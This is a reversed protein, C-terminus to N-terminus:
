DTSIFTLDLYLKRLTDIILNASFLGRGPAKTADLALDRSDFIENVWDLLSSKDKESAFKNILKSYFEYMKLYIDAYKAWDNKEEPIKTFNELKIFKVESCNQEFISIDKFSSLDYFYGRKAAIHLTQTINALLPRLWLYLFTHNIKDLSQEIWPFYEMLLYYDHFADGNAFKGKNEILKEIKILNPVGSLAKATEMTTTADSPLFYFLLSIPFTIVNFFGTIAAYASSKGCKELHSFYRKLVFMEGNENKVLFREGSLFDEGVELRRILTFKSLEDSGTGKGRIFEPLLKIEASTPATEIPLIKEPEVLLPVKVEPPSSESLNKKVDNIIIKNPVGNPASSFLLQKKRELDKMTEISSFALIALKVAQAVSGFYSGEKWEEKLDLGSAVMQILYSILRLELGGKFYIALNITDALVHVLEQAIKEKSAGKEIKKQLDSLRFVISSTIEIPQLLTPALVSYGASIVSFATKLFEDSIDKDASFQQYLQYINHAAKLSLAIKPNALGIVRTTYYFAEGYPPNLKINRRTFENEKNQHVRDDTINLAFPDNSAISGLIM